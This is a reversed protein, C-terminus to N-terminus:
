GVPVVYSDGPLVGYEGLKDSPDRVNQNGGTKSTALSASRFSRRLGQARDELHSGCGYNNKNRFNQGRLMIFLSSPVRVVLKQYNFSPKARNGAM